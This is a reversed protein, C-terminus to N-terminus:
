PALKKESIRANHYKVIRRKYEEECRLARERRGKTEDKELLIAANNGEEDYNRIRATPWILKTPAIVDIGFALTFPLHGSSTKITTHYAWMVKPILDAWTTPSSGM